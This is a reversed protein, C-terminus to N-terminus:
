IFSDSDASHTAPQQSRRDVVFHRFAALAGQLIASVHVAPTRVMRHVRNTQRVYQRLGYDLTRDAKHVKARAAAIGRVANEDLHKAGSAVSELIRSMKREFAPIREPVWVARELCAGSARLSEELNQMRTLTRIELKRAKRRLRVTLFLMGITQVMVLVAMALVLFTALSSNSIALDM